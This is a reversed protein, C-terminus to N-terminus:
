QWTRAVLRASNPNGSTPTAWGAVAAGGGAAVPVTGAWYGSGLNSRVWAGAVRVSAKATNTNNDTWAVVVLSGDAAFAVTPWDVSEARASLRQAASWPAGATATSSWVAGMNSADLSLWAAVLDGAGNMALGPYYVNQTGSVLVPAGWPGAAPRRAVVMSNGDLYGVAANGAADLGPKPNWTALGTPASVTQAPEWAGGAPRYAAGVSVPSGPGGAQWTALAAGAENVALEALAAGVGAGSVLTPATWAATGPQGDCAQAEAAAGGDAPAGAGGGAGGGASGGASGGAGAGVGTGPLSASYVGVANTWVLTITGSCDLALRLDGAVAGPAPEVAAGFAAGAARWTVMLKAPTYRTATTVFAIAAAESGGIAVAVPGAGLAGGPAARSAKWAGGKVRESYRVDGTGNWALLAHGNGNMAVHPSEPVSAVAFPGQLVRQAAWSGAMAPAMGCLGAAAGVAVWWRRVGHWAAGGHHIDLTNM